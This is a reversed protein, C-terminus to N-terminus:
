RTSDPADEDIKSPQAHALPRESPRIVGQNWQTVPGDGAGTADPYLDGPPERVFDLCVDYRLVEPRLM